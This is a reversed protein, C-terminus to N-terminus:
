RATYGGDIVLESGTMYKSEDSALFLVGNAIDEPEGIKGVPISQNVMEWAEPGVSDLGEQVMNTLIYGPHVSNVRVPYGQQACHLAASKTLLRVAGKSANYAPIGPNAIIGEISSLNIISGGKERMAIVAKQTGLFVGDQNVAQTARWGELTEDEISAHKVIGANNVVIHLGRREDLITDIVRQWQNQDTVDHALFRCSNSAIGNIKKEAACGVDALVDSIFVFAGEEVLRKAIAFGLGQAGGTVLAVKNEVRKM